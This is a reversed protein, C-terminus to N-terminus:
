GQLMGGNGGKNAGEGMNLGVPNVRRRAGTNGVRFLFSISATYPALQKARDGGASSDGLSSYRGRGSDTDAWM